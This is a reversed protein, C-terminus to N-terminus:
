PTGGTASANAPLRPSPVSETMARHIATQYAGSSGSPERNTLYIQPLPGVPVYKSIAVQTAEVRAATEKQTDAQKVFVVRRSQPAYTVLWRIHSIGSGTLQGTEAHFMSTGLTNHLQWGVNRQADFFSSVAQADYARFPHPWSKNRYYDTHFRQSWSQGNTHGWNQAHATQQSQATITIAVALSLVSLSRPVDIIRHRRSMVSAIWQKFM